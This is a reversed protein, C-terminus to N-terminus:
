IMRIGETTSRIRWYTDRLYRPDKISKMIEYNSKMRPGWLKMIRPGRAEKIAWNTFFRGAICVEPWDRPQSSGSSFPYAVWALKRSQVTRPTLILWIHSFSKSESIQKREGILTGEIHKERKCACEHLLMQFM